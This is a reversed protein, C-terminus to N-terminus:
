SAARESRVISMTLAASLVPLPSVRPSDILVQETAPDFRMGVTGRLCRAFEEALVPGLRSPRIQVLGKKRGEAIAVESARFAEIGSPRYNVVISDEQLASLTAAQSGLRRDKNRWDTKAQFL